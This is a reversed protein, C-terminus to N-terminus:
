ARTRAPSSQWSSSHSRDGYVACAFGAADGRFALVPSLEGRGSAFFRTIVSGTIAYVPALSIAFMAHDGCIAPKDIGVPCVVAGPSHTATAIPLLILANFTQAPTRGTQPEATQPRQAICKSPSTSVIRPVVTPELHVVLLLLRLSVDARTPWHAPAVNWHM